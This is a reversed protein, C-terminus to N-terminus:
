WQRAYGASDPQVSSQPTHRVLATPGFIEVIPPPGGNAITRQTRLVRALRQLKTATDREIPEGLGPALGWKIQVHSSLLVLRARQEADRETVDIKTIQHFFPQGRLVKVLSLADVLDDGRWVNGPGKAPSQVGEIVPLDLAPLQSTVFLGPLETASNDVRHYGSAGAVIAVPQRYDALVDIGGDRRQRIRDVDAVWPNGNLAAVARRLNASSYSRGRIQLAVTRRLEEHTLHDMWPPANVLHVQDANIEAPAQIQAYSVLCLRGQHWGVLVAGIVAAGATLGLLQRPTSQRSLSKFWPRSGRAMAAKKGLRWGM